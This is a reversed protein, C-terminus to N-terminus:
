VCHSIIKSFGWSCQMPIANGNTICNLLTLHINRSKRGEYKQRSPGDLPHLLISRLTAKREQCPFRATVALMGTDILM